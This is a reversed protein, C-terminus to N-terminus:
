NRSRRLTQSPKEGFVASYQSAFRGLQEFKWRMAVETVTEQCDSRELTERVRDLRYRRLYQMPTIGRFQRFSEFLTRTSVESAAVLDSVSIEERAHAAIYDEARKVARPVAPSHKDVLDSFNHRRSIMLAAFFSDEFHRRAEAHGLVGAGNEFDQVILDILGRAAAMEPLDWGVDNEFDLQGPLYCGFWQEAFRELAPREIRVILKSCHQSWEMAIHDRPNLFSAQGSRVEFQRANSTIRASGDRVVQLLYFNEFQVPDIRVDRGYDAWNVSLASVPAHNFRVTGSGIHHGPHLRHSCFIRGVAQQAHDYDDTEFLNHGSLVPTVHM